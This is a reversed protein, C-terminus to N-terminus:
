MGPGSSTGGPGAAGGSGGLMSRIEAELEHVLTRYDEAERPTTSSTMAFKALGECALRYDDCASRFSPDAMFLHRILRAEGPFRVLVRALEPRLVPRDAM